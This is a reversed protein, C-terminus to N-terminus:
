ADTRRIEALRKKAAEVIDTDSYHDVIYAYGDAAVNNGARDQEQVWRFAFQAETFQPLQDDIEYWRARCNVWVHEQPRIGPDDDLFGAPVAYVHPDGDTPWPVPSGCRDCFDKRYPPPVALVPAEFSRIHAEGSLIRVGKANLAAFFASGTFKRCRHCHCIRFPTEASEFEFRVTGCLCSGNIM